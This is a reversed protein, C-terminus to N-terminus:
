EAAQLTPAAARGDAVRRAQATAREAEDTRKDRYDDFRDARDEARIGHNGGHLVQTFEDGYDELTFGM